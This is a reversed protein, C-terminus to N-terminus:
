WGTLVKVPQSTDQSTSNGLQGVSNGGWCHIAAGSMACSFASGLAISDFKLNGFVATPVLRNTTTADGLQGAGNWGWCYAAGADDIACAHAIGGQVIGTPSIAATGEVFGNSMAVDKWKKGSGVPTPASRQTTTGDGLQGLGNYGWCLLQDDVTIGCTARASLAIKRFQLSSAVAVPKAHPVTDFIGIGLQGSTNNGWCYATGTTSVGCTHLWGAVVSSFKIGGVVRNPTLQRTNLPLLTDGVEGYQNLGWCYADGDTNVGCTTLRGTTIDAWNEQVSVNVPVNGASGLAGNGLQGNGGRGWCIAGTATLGCRHQSWGGSLSLLPQVPVAVPSGSSSVTSSGYELFGTNVGWCYVTGVPDLACATAAGVALRRTGEIAPDVENPNACAGAILAVAFFISGSRPGRMPFRM